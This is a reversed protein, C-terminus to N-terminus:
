SYSPKSTSPSPPRIKKPITLTELVQTFVPGVGKAISLSWIMMCIMCTSCYIGIIQFPIKFWKPRIWLLPLSIIWFLVFSLSQVTTTLFSDPFHNPIKGYSPWLSTFLVGVLRIGTWCQVSNWVFSLLIRQALPIVSGRM